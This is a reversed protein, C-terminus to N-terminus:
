RRCCSSSAGTKYSRNGLRHLLYTYITTLNYRYYVPLLVFAVLLLGRHLRLVDAPLDHWEADGYRACQRLHHGLHFSGGNRFGGHVPAFTPRWSLVYNNNAQRSTLRSFLLLVAFYALITLIIVM